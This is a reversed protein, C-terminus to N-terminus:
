WDLISNYKSLTDKALEDLIFESMPVQVKNRKIDFPHDDKFASQLGYQHAYYIVKGPQARIMRGCHVDHNGWHKDLTLEPITLWKNAKRSNLGDTTNHTNSFTTYYYYDYFRRDSVDVDRSSVQLREIWPEMNRNAYGIGSYNNAKLYDIIEDLTKDELLLFEDVDHNLACSCCWGYKIKFYEFMTIRGFDSDWKVTRPGYPLDWRIVEVTVDYPLKSLEERVYESTYADSGNDFIAFGTIGHELYHYAVWDKIWIIPENKMMTFMTKKGTFVESPETVPIVINEAENEIVLSDAKTEVITTCTKHYDIHEHTAGKFNILPKLNFLPPGVLAVQEPNIRIAEVFLVDWDFAEDYTQGPCYIVDRHELPTPADRRVGWSSPIKILNIM